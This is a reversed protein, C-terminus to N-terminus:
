SNTEPTAVGRVMAYNGRVSKVVVLADRDIIDGDSSVNIIENGFRAKGAPRLPTLTTGQKGILHSLDVIMERRGRLEAEEADMTGLMTQNLLPTHPLLHKIFLMGSVLAGFLVLVSALSYPIQDLEYDTTPWIFTQMALVIGAIVMLGGGLGFVGFGPLILVEMLIFVIGGLFLMVELWGATGNLFKSWFFLGFCLAALFGPIGVGPAKLESMLALVGLFLCFFALSPSSLVEILEHAWNSRPTEIRDPLAYGRAVEELDSALSNAIGLDFAQQGTLRLPQGPQTIEADRQWLEPERLGEAEESSLFRRSASGKRQYTFVELEPDSMAAWISWNRGSKAAVRQLFRRLDERGAATYTYGGEGGITADPGVVVEHCAFAVLSANGAAERPIFAVRHVEQPQSILFNVLNECAIPDGGSSDVELLLFNAGGEIASQIMLTVRQVMRNSIPGHLEIHVPKWDRDMGFDRRLQEEPVKLREALQGHDEALDGILNYRQRLDRGTLLLPEGRAVIRDSKAVEGAAKLREYEAGDEFRQDNVLFLQQDQDLMALAMPVPLVNRYGAIEEYALRITEPINEEDIGASGIEAEPHMILQECALPVLVAHGQLSGQVYAVTKLQSMPRSTLFRALSLSREFESGRASKGADVTFELVVTPREGDGSVRALLNQLSNKINADVSGTIPLPVRVRAAVFEGSRDEEVQEAPENPPPPDDDQAVGAHDSLLCGVMAVLGALWWRGGCLGNM